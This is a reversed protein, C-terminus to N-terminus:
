LGIQTKVSVLQSTTLESGRAMWQESILDFYVDCRDDFGPKHNADLVQLNNFYVRKKSFDDSFWYDGGIATLERIARSVPSNHQEWAKEANAKIIEPSAQRGRPRRGPQPSNKAIYDAIFAQKDM